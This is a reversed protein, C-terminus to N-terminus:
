IQEVAHRHPERVVRSVPQDACLHGPVEAPGDLLGRRGQAAFRPAAALRSQRFVLPRRPAVPRERPPRRGVGRLADRHLERPVHPVLPHQVQRRRPRRFGDLLILPPQPPRPLHLYRQTKRKPRDAFAAVPGCLVLVARGRASTSDCGPGARPLNPRSSSRSTRGSRSERTSVATRPGASSQLGFRLALSRALFAAAPPARRLSGDAYATIMTLPSASAMKATPALPKAGGAVGLCAVAKAALPLWIAYRMRRFRM